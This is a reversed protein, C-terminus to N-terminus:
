VMKIYIPPYQIVLSMGVFYMINIFQHNMALINKIADEVYKIDPLNGQKLPTPVTIIYVDSSKPQSYAKLFGSEVSEKVIKKLGPETIHINGNNVTDVVDDNIDIGFTVIERNSIIAATPLGIYGLGIISVKRVNM